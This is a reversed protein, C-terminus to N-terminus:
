SSVPADWSNRYFRWFANENETFRSVYCDGVDGCIRDATIELDGDFRQPNEEMVLSLTGEHIDCYPEDESNLQDQITELLVDALRNSIDTDRQRLM